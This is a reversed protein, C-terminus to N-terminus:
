WDYRASKLCNELMDRLVAAKSGEMTPLAAASECWNDQDVKEVDWGEWSESALEFIYSLDKTEYREWYLDDYLSVNRDAPCYYTDHKLFDVPHIAAYYCKESLSLGKFWALLNKGLEKQLELSAFYASLDAHTPTAKITDSM